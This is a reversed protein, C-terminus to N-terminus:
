GGTDAKHRWRLRKRLTMASATKMTSAAEMATTTKMTTPAPAKPAEM